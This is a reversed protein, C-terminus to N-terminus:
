MMPLSAGGGPVQSHVWLTLVFSLKFYFFPRFFAWSGGLYSGVIQTSNDQGGEGMVHNNAVNNCM